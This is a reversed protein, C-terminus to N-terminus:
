AGRHRALAATRSLLGDVARAAFGRVSDPYFLLACHRRELPQWKRQWDEAVGLFEFGRGAELVHRLTDITGVLGPSAASYKEDYGMKLVFYRADSEVCVQIAVARGACTLKAIRLEGRRAHREALTRVFEGLARNRALSSGRRAKWGSDEVRVLDDLERGVTEVSPSTVSSAVEGEAALKRLNQRYRKLSGEISSWATGPALALTSSGPVVRTAGLSAFTSVCADDADIRQLAVPMGLAAVAACLAAETEADAAPLQAPEFLERAGILELREIGRRRVRCLPAVAALRAGRWLTVAHLRVRFARAACSWWDHSVLPGWRQPGLDPWADALSEFAELDRLIEVRHGAEVAVPCATTV